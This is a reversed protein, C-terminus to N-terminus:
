ETAPGLSWAIVSGDFLVNWPNLDRGLLLPCLDSKVKPLTENVGWLLKGRPNYNVRLSNQNFFTKFYFM